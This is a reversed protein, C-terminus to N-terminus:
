LDHAFSSWIPHSTIMAGLVPKTVCKILKVSCVTDWNTLRCTRYLKRIGKECPRGVMVCHCCQGEDRLLICGKDSSQSCCCCFLEKKNYKMGGFDQTQREVKVCLGWFYHYLNWNRKKYVCVCRAVKACPQFFGEVFMAGGIRLTVTFGYFIICQIM